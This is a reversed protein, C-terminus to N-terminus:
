KILKLARLRNVLLQYGLLNLHLGDSTALKENLKGSRNCFLPYLNVFLFGRKKASLRIQKNLQIAITNKNFADPFNAKVSDNTPLVSFVVIQTQPSSEKMRHVILLINRVIIKNPINKSIDNIGIELFLKLPKRAIIDDMRNLLGFTIDGAIGRNIITSDQLLVQWNGFETLSNGAFIIRDKHMRESRYEAKKQEHYKIAYPITDYNSRQANIFLVHILLFFFIFFKM